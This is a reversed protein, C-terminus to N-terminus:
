IHNLQINLLELLSAELMPVGIHHLYAMFLQCLIYMVQIKLKKHLKRKLYNFYIRTYVFFFNLYVEKGSKSASSLIQLNDINYINYNKFVKVKNHM